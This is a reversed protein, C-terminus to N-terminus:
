NNYSDFMFVVFIYKYKLLFKCVFGECVSKILLEVEELLGDFMDVLIVDKESSVILKFEVEKVNKGIGIMIFWVGENKFFRVVRDFFIVDFSLM